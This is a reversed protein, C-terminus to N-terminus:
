VGRVRPEVRKKLMLETVAWVLADLRDPSAGEGIASCLEDELASFAGVHRVRGQEYLAAVPEARAQKARTAHVTKVPLGADVQAILERVMDGGQNVEAVVRDAKHRHFVRAVREAWQLPRMRKVSADELVYAVGDEGVGVCVIGCANSKATSTAPPDVAVVIRKMFPAEKVRVREITERRWLADPDDAIVDGDLEQRGLATGGYRQMVDTLFAPALNAANDFTRSRTVVTSADKMLERILKTARPTTTIVAQPVDGMRLAMQVNMWADEAKKWKALEDCWAADFQPGRLSDPEEASFVQAISGNGWTILRKSPEYKPREHDHHVSLLGSVGEIMVMRAEDFNPAVIAIRQCRRIVPEFIGLALAKVWEAGARTKGAGRGGLVLWNRFAIQPPLQNHERAWYLWQNNLEVVEQNLLTHSLKQAEGNAKCSAL